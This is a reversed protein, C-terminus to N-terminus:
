ENLRIALSNTTKMHLVMLKKLEEMEAKMFAFIEPSLRIEAEEDTSSSEPPLSVTPASSVPPLENQFLPLSLHTRDDAIVTYCLGRYGYKIKVKKASGPCPDAVAIAQFDGDLDLKGHQTLQQLQKTIVVARGTQKKHKGMKRRSKKVSPKTAKSAPPKDLDEAPGYKANFVWFGELGGHTSLKRVQRAILPRASVGVAGSAAM